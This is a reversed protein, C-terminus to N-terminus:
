NVLICIGISWYKCISYTKRFISIRIAGPVQRSGPTERQLRQAIASRSRPRWATACRRCRRLASGSQRSQAVAPNTRSAVTGSWMTGSTWPPDSSSLLMRQRQVSQWALRVASCNPWRLVTGTPGSPHGISHGVGPAPRFDAGEAPSVASPGFKECGRFEFRPDAAMLDINEM